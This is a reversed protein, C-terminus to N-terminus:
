ILIQIIGGIIILSLLSIIIGQYPIHKGKRLKTIKKNITPSIGMILGGFLSGFISLDIVYTSNFLTGYGGWLAIYLPYPYSMISLLPIITLIFSLLVISTKQFPIYTKKIIRGFWLGMSVAFAGIFLSVVVKSVGLWVAGGAVAAAGITCLPCHALVGEILFILFIFPVFILKKITM